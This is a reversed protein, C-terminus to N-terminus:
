TSMPPHRGPHGCRSVPPTSASGWHLLAMAKVTDQEVMRGQVHSLRPTGFTYVWVLNSHLPQLQPLM